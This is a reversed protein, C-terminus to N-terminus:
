ASQNYHAIFLPYLFSFVALGILGEYVGMYPIYMYGSIFISVYFVLLLLQGFGIQKKKCIVRYVITSLIAFLIISVPIGFDAIVDGMFTYFVHMRIGMIMSLMDPSIKFFKRFIHAGYTHQHTYMMDTYLNSFGEGFYRIISNETGEDSYSDFRAITITITGLVLIGLLIGAYKMVYGKLKIKITNRLFLFLFIYLSTDQIFRYRAGVCFDALGEYYMSAILGIVVLYNEKKHNKNIYYFFLIPTIYKLFKIIKVLRISVYSLHAETNKILMDDHYTGMNRWTSGDFLHLLTEFFPLISIIAVFICLYDLIINNDFQMNSENRSQLSFIPWVLLLFLGFAIFVSSLQANGVGLYCTPQNVYIVTTIASLFWVALTFAIHNITGDFYHKKYFYLLYGYLFANVIPCFINVDLGFM